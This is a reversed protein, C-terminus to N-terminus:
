PNITVQYLVLVSKSGVPLTSSGPISGGASSTAGTGLNITMVGTGANYTAQDADAIATYFSTVNTDSVYSVDRGGTYVGTKLSAYAIPLSDAISSGTVAGSGSNTSVLIYELVEGPKATVGSDYYTFTNYPYTAGTGNATTVNRVYKKLTATGSTFTDTATGSTATAAGSTTSTVTLNKLVTVDTGPTTITGATVDVNVTKQEAVLVGAATAGPLPSVLNITSIGTANDVVTSVQRMQGSVVVFSGNAIGNVSGDAVGDSPVVLSTPTSGTVTVTAGLTISLTSPTATPGSTNSSSTIATSVNYTDRGNANATVIFANTLKATGLYSTSQPAGPVITAASPVLLIKVTVSASSTKVGTGDNYTLTASNFIQTDAALNAFASGAASLTLLLAFALKQKLSKLKM